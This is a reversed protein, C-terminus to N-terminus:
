FFLIPMSIGVELTEIKPPAPMTSPEVTCPSHVSIDWLIPTMADNNGDDGMVSCLRDEGFTAHDVANMSSSTRHPIM